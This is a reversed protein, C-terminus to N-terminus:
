WARSRSTAGPSTPSRRGRHRRYRRAGSHQPHAPRPRCSSPSLMGVPWIRKVAGSEIGRLLMEADAARGILLAPAADEARRTIACARTASIAIPSACLRQPLVGRSVLLPRDDGQRRLLRRPREARRPHLRAGAADPEARDRRAPHQACGAALHLAMEDHHPQFPLCVAVSFVLFYPLISCCCRCAITSCGAATSACISRPLFRWRPRSSMM